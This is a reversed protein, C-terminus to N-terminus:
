QSTSMIWVSAELLGLNLGLLPPSVTGRSGRWMVPSSIGLLSCSEEPRPVSQLFHDCPLFPLLTLASHTVTLSICINRQTHVRRQM